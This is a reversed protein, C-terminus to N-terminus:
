GRFWRSSIFMYLRHSFKGNMEYAPSRICKMLNKYHKLPPHYATTLNYGVGNTQRINLRAAKELIRFKTYGDFEYRPEELWERIKNVLPPPLDIYSLISM